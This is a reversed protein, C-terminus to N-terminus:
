SNGSAASSGKDALERLLDSAAQALLKSRENLLQEYNAVEWLAPQTPVFQEKLREVKVDFDKLYQKPEKSSFSRNAKENLVVINALSNIKTDDANAKRLVKKPFFHHWEPKFGENLQNDDRDFGVRIDQHMWDKAEQRFACLYLMLRYFDERYDMQFEEPKFVAEIRLQKELADVAEGFSSSAKVLKIDQDLTTTASGSYRGDGIALLFWRFGRDFKFERKFHAHLFFLPILANHAPLLDSSLVGHSVLNKHVFTISEKVSRWANDFEKSSDWFDSSIDRLRAMGKGIVALTRILVSPDLQFGKEDLDKLFHDFEERVWGEQKAAVLAIIVDSEKIKTGATNLRSFIEAVDELDHDIIIEFIPFNELKRVSQLTEHVAAFGPCGDRKSIQEALESLSSSALISRVSVWEPSNKRVPNPLGFELADSPLSVNVLVDFKKLSKNWESTEGWWYPKKGFLLALSTIRQQGDVIWQKQAQVGLATKPSDYTSEWLLFAGVPYGRWLSDVFKKTKEPTWVFKRQFEPVDLKGLTADDIHKVIDKIELRQDKM